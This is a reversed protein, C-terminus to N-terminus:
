PTATPAATDAPDAPTIPLIGAMAQMVHLNVYLLNGTTGAKPQPPRTASNTLPVDYCVLFAEGGGSITEGRTAVLSAKGQADVLAALHYSSDIKEAALTLPYTKGSFAEALPAAAPTSAAIPKLPAAQAFPTLRTAGLGVLTGILASGLLTFTLLNRQKM